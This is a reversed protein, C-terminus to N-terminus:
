DMLSDAWSEHAPNQDMVPFSIQHFSLVTQTLEQIQQHLEANEQRLLAITNERIIAESKRNARSKAAAIKNNEKRLASIPKNEKNRPARKRPRSLIIAAPIPDKIGFSKFNYLAVSPKAPLRKAGSM